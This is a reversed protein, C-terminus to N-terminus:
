KTKQWLYGNYRLYEQGDKTVVQITDGLHRGLGPLVAETDSVVELLFSTPQRQESQRMIALLNGGEYRLTLSDIFVFEGEPQQPKYEGERQKWTLSEPTTERKEGLIQRKKAALILVQHGQLEQLYMTLALPIPIIRLLKIRAKLTGDEQPLLKLTQGSIKAKYRRRQKEITLLGASSAYTGEYERLMNSPPTLRQQSKEPPLRGAKAALAFRLTEFALEEQLAGGEMSNSLIVVGLEQEPLAMFLARHYLTAGDHSVIKTAGPISPGGLFWALGIKTDLDLPNNLNQAEFMQALTEKQLIRQGNYEGEAFVMKMFHSLDSVTTNLGGAPTDRLPLEEKRKGAEYAKTQTPPQATFVSDKMGLPALLAQQMYEEFTTKTIEQIACGLLTVGTNSYSLILNPPYAVYEDKLVDILANFPAPNKTLMGQFYDSFLGSHHTMLMRPTIEPAGEFRSKVSFMPLYTKLPQDIDLRGQDVLQMAAIATFLKSVSGARYMTDATAPTKKEVDAYGFGQSWVIEQDDILAISLGAIKKEKMQEQILWTAYQKTFTYDGKAQQKPIEPKGHACSLLVFASLLLQKKM